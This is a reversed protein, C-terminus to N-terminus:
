QTLIYRVGVRAGNRVASGVGESPAVADDGIADSAM